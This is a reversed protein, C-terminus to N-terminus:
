HLFGGFVFTVAIGVVRWPDTQLRSAKATKNGDGPSVLPSVALVDLLAHFSTGLFSRSSALSKDTAVKIKRSTKRPETTKTPSPPSSRLSYHHHESASPAAVAVPSPSPPSVVRSVPSRPM